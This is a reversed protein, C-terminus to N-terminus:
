AIKFTHRVKHSADVVVLQFHQTEDGHSNNGKCYYSGGDEIQLEAISMGVAYKNEPNESPTQTIMKIRDGSTTLYGGIRGMSMVPAPLADVTCMVTLDQGVYKV